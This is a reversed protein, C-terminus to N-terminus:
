GFIGDEDWFYKSITETCLTMDKNVFGRYHYLKGIRSDVNRSKLPKIVGPKHITAYAAYKTRLLFKRSGGASICMNSGYKALSLKDWCSPETKEPVPMINPPASGKSIGEKDTCFKTSYRHSGFTYAGISSDSVLSEFSIGNLVLFEDFDIFFTWEYDISRLICDLIQLYQGRYWVDKKNEFWSPISILNLNFLIM